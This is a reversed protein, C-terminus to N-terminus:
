YNSVTKLLTQCALEPATYFHAPDLKYYESCKKWFTQLVDALVLADIKLDTDNYCDPTKKEMNNWFKSHMNM